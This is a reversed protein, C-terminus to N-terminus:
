IKVRRLKERIIGDPRYYIVFVTFLGFLIFLLNNSDVPLAVSDKLILLGTQVATYIASGLLAGVGTSSGGIISMIYVTFTVAYTFLETGAFGIYQAYAAGDIGAIISGIVFVQSKYRFTNKGLADALVENERISKLVRGYPSVMILRYLLYFGVFLASGLILNAAVSTGYDRIWPFASPVHAIGVAGGLAPVNLVFINIVEAFMFTALALFDGRLNLAPLSILYGAVAAIASGAIAGVVFPYGALTMYASTYAGIMFFAVTGFNFIGASGYQLNVTLSLIAFLLVTIATAGIYSLFEVSVM